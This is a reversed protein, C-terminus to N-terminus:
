KDNSEMNAQSPNSAEGKMVDPLDPPTSVPTIELPEFEDKDGGSVGIRYSLGITEPLQARATTHLYGYESLQKSDEMVTQKDKSIKFLRQDEPAKKLIGEIIKKVEFVTTTEKADAFITTKNRRIMLFVDM